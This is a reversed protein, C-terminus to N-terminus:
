RLSSDEVGRYERRSNRLLVADAPAAIMAGLRTDNLVSAAGCDTGPSTRRKGSGAFVPPMGSMCANDSRREM